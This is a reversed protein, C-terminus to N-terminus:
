VTQAPAPMAIPSGSYGYAAAYRADGHGPLFALQHAGGAGPVVQMQMYVPALMQAGGMIKGIGMGTGTGDSQASGSTAHATATSGPTAHASGLGPPAQPALPPPSSTPAPSAQIIYVPAPPAPLLPSPAWPGPMPMSMPMHYTASRRHHRPHPAHPRPSRTRRHTPPPSPPPPPSPSVTPYNPYYAFPFNYANPPPASAPAEPATSARRHTRHRPPSRARATSTPSVPAAAADLPTDLTRIRDAPPAEGEPHYWSVLTKSKAKPRYDVTVRDTAVWPLIHLANFFRHVGNLETSFSPDSSFSASTITTRSQPQAADAASMRRYDETPVPHVHLSVPEDGDGEPPVVLRDDARSARLSAAPPSIGQISTGERDYPNEMPTQPFELVSPGAEGEGREEPDCIVRSALGQQVDEDPPRIQFSPHRPRRSGDAHGGVSIQLGPTPLVGRAFSVNGVPAIPTPPTSVYRPLTNGSMGTGETGETGETNTTGRRPRRARVLARPLRRLGSVFGGVFGKGEKHAHAERVKAGRGTTWQYGMGMEAPEVAM